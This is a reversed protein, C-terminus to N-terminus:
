GHGKGKRGGLFKNGDFKTAAAKRETLTGRSKGDWRLRMELPGWFKHGRLRPRVLGTLSFM